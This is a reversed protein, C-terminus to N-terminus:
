FVVIGGHHLKLAETASVLYGSSERAFIGGTVKTEQFVGLDVNGQSMRHLATEMGRNRVNHINYTGFRIPHGLKGRVRGTYYGTCRCMGWKRLYNRGGERGKVEREGVSRKEGTLVKREVLRCM